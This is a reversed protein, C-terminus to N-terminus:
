LNKGRVPKVVARGYAIRAARYDKITLIEKM